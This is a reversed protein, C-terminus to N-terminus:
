LGREADPVGTRGQSPPRQPRHRRPRTYPAPKKRTAFCLLDEEDFEVPADPQQEVLLRLGAATMTLSDEKSYGLTVLAKEVLEVDLNLHPMRTVQGPNMGEGSDVTHVELSAFDEAKVEPVWERVRPRWELKGMPSGSINLVGAHVMGHCGSCLTLANFLATRGGRTRWRVHHAHLNVTQGCHPNACCLGDRCLVKEVLKADNPRDREGEPLPELELEEGPDITVVEPEVEVPGDVTHVRSAACDPCQQYLVKRSHDRAHKQSSSDEAGESKGLLEGALIKESLFLLVSGLDFPRGDLPEGMVATVHNMATSFREKEELTFEASVRTTVNPLGFDRERPKTRGERIAQSVELALRNASVASDLANKLWSAENDPKVIRSLERLKSWSLAGERFAAICGPMEDLKRAVQLFVAANSRTMGFESLLLHRPSSFGLELHLKNECVRQLAVLFGHRALNGFRDCRKMYLFLGRTDLEQIDSLTELDDQPARDKPTGDKTATAASSRYEVRGESM